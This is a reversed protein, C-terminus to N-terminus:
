DPPVDECEELVTRTNVRQVWDRPLPVPGAEVIRRRGNIREALSSWPWHEARDVLGAAIPNGEIYRTLTLYHNETRVALSKYRDQYVHGHGRTDSALRFRIAHSASLWRLYASVATVPDAVGTAGAGERVWISQHWHTDMLCYSCIRVDYRARGEEILHLFEDYARPSPFLLQKDTRRNFVHYVLGPEINRKKRPM